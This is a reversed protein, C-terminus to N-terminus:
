EAAAIVIGLSSWGVLWCSRTAAPEAGVEAREPSLPARRATPVGPCSLAWWFATPGGFMSGLEPATVGGWARSEAMGVGAAAGVVLGPSTGRGATGLAPGECDGEGDGVVVTSGLVRGGAGDLRPQPETVVPVALIRGGIVMWAPGGVVVVVVVVIPGGADPAGSSIVWAFSPAVTCSTTPWLTFTLKDPEGPMGQLSGVLESALTRFRVDPDALGAVPSAYAVNRASLAPCDVIEAPWFGKHRLSLGIHARGLRKQDTDTSTM